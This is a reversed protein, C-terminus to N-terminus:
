VWLYRNVAPRRLNAFGDHSPSAFGGTRPDWLGRSLPTAPRFRIQLSGVGVRRRATVRASERNRDPHTGDYWPHM